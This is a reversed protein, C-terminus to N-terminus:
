PDLRYLRFFDHEVDLVTFSTFGARRALDEVTGSRLVTGLAASPVDARSAPLCHLVSWGYMMREVPDGPAIFADAVREDVVLVVGDPAVSTRLSRLVGIPDAMDHLAEFICALDVTGTASPLETVFSADVGAERAHRRADHVSADDVDVGIVTASPFARALAVTSWGQGCGVDIITAGPERLRADVEPMAGIWSPTDHLFTPRNIAGQGERMDSGYAAFPVGAGDVFAAIVDDIRNAIGAVMPAFPAVHAPDEALVLAPAHTAPLHFRRTGDAAGADVGLLGAVAQQELWETVYRLDVGARVALEAPSHPGHEHLHHYLGLRWGIHITLLELAAITHEFIREVLDGVAEGAPGHIVTDM